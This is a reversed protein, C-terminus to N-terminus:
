AAITQAVSPDFQGRAADALRDFRDDERRRDALGPLPGTNFRREPEISPIGPSPEAPRRAEIACPLGLRPRMAGALREAFAAVSEVHGSPNARGAAPMAAVGM